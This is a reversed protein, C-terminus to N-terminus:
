QKCMTLHNWTNGDLESLEIQVYNFLKLYQQRVYIIRNLMLRKNSIQKMEPYCM